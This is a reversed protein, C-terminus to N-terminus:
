PERAQIQFPLVSMTWRTRDLAALRRVVEDMKGLTWVTLPGLARGRTDGPVFLDPVGRVAILHLVEAAHRQRDPLAAVLDLGERRAAADPFTLREGAALSVGAGSGRHPLLLTVNEDQDVNLVYVYADRTIEIELTARDGVYYAPQDLAAHAFRFAPDPMGQGLFRAKAKLECRTGASTVSLALDRAPDYDLGVLVRQLHFAYSSVSEHSRGDTVSQIDLFASIVQRGLREVALERARDRARRECAAPSEDLASSATAVVAVAERAAVPENEAPPAAGVTLALLPLIGWPRTAATRPRRM